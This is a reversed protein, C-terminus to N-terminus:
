PSAAFAATTAGILGTAVANGQGTWFAPGAVTRHEVDCGAARWAEACERSAPLLPLMTDRVVDLWTVPGLASHALTALDLSDLAAAMEPAVDYGVVEVTEQRAFCERLVHVTEPARGDHLAGPMMRLRLFEDLHVRGKVVPQWLVTAFSASPLFPAAAAALVAGLRLGLLGVTEAGNARLAASATQVDAIWTDWRAERFDGESDGTGFPDLRLATIGLSALAAAQLRLTRRSRNMEEALPPLLVVGRRGPRQAPVLLAFLAGASGKLFVPEPATM